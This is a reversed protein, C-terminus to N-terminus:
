ITTHNYATVRRKREEEEEKLFLEEFREKAKKKSTIANNLSQRAESENLTAAELNQKARRLRVQNETEKMIQNQNHM